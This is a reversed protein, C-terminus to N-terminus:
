EREEEVREESKLAVASERDWNDCDRRLCKVIKEKKGGSTIYAPVAFRCEQCLDPELLTLKHLIEM